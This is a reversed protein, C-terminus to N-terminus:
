TFSPSVVHPTPLHHQPRPGAKGQEVQSSTLSNGQSYSDFRIGALKVQLACVCASSRVTVHVTLDLVAQSPAMRHQRHLDLTAPSLSCCKPADRVKPSVFQKKGNAETYYNTTIAWWGAVSPKPAATYSLSHIFNQLIVMGSGKSWSGYTLLQGGAYSIGNSSLQRGAARVAAVKHPTAREVNLARHHRLFPRNLLSGRLGAASHSGHVSSLSVVHAILLCFLTLPSM